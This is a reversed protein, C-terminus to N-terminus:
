RNIKEGHIRRSKERKNKINNAISKHRKISQQLRKIKEKHQEEEPKALEKKLKEKKIELTNKEGKINMEREEPNLNFFYFFM